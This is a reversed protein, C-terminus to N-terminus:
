MKIDLWFQMQGSACADTIKHETTYYMICVYMNCVYMCVYMICVYMCVYM